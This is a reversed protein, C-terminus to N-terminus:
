DPSYSHYDQSYVGQTSFVAMTQKNFLSHPCMRIETTNTIIEFFCKMRNNMSTDYAM